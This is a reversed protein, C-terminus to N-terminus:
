DQKGDNNADFCEVRSDSMQTEPIHSMSLIKTKDFTNEHSKNLM